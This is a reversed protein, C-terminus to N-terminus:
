WFGYQRSVIVYVGLALNTVGHALAAAWIDGTRVALWGYVVGALLGAAWRDHELAFVVAVTWFAQMDFVGLPVTWFAGQRLWRYFFGRFFFEEIVAIVAASGVLKLLTLVWGAQEPAFALSIHGPPLPPSLDPNFYGPLTGPMMILWRHYFLQFGPAIRGVWPTEPLIWLLAVVMGAALALPVHRLRLAPYVRWPRLWLFLAACVVSKLAYSWPYVTRPVEGVSEWIQLAFIVALWVAFPVVHGAVVNIAPPTRTSRTNQTRETPFL